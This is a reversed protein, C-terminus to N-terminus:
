TKRGDAFVGRAAAWVMGTLLVCLVLMTNGYDMRGAGSMTYGVCMGLGTLVPILCSARCKKKGALLAAPFAAAMAAVYWRCGYEMYLKGLRPAPTLIQLYNMGSYSEYGRGELQLPLVAPAMLYGAMDWAIEKLIQRKGNQWAVAALNCLVRDAGTKGIRRELSPELNTEIGTAEYTSYAMELYDIDRIDEESLLGYSHYLTTWAFRNALRTALGPSEGGLRVAGGAAAGVILILLWRARVRRGASSKQRTGATEAAEAEAKEAGALEEPTGTREAGAFRALTQSWVGLCVMPIAGVCLYEARILAAAAWACLGAGFFLGDRPAEMSRLACAIELLLLATAWVRGDPRMLFQAVMPFTLVAATMFLKGRMKGGWFYLAMGLVAIQGACVISEVPGKLRAFANCAWLIGLVIQVSFGIFIVRGLVAACYEPVKRM